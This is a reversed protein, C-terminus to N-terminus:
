LKHTNMWEGAAAPHAALHHELRREAGAAMTRFKLCEFERGGFGIRRHRFFAPSGVDARVAVYCALFLPAFLALGIVAAILDFTRKTPGGVPRQLSSIAIDSVGSLVPTVHRM